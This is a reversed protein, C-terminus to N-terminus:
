RLILKGKYLEEEGAIVRYAYIGKEHGELDITIDNEKLVAHQILKGSVDFVELTNGKNFGTFTFKNHSPNPFVGQQRNPVTPKLSTFTCTTYFTRVPSYASFHGGNNTKVRWYYTTNGALNSVLWTLNATNLSDVSATFTPDTSLEAHYIIGDNQAAWKLFLPSATDVCPFQDAPSIMAPPNPVTDNSGIYTVFMDIKKFPRNTTLNRPENVITDVVSMGSTVRGHVSYQGNLNAAAAVCIFFQSTASNINNPLRAASMIGRLHKAASFEAMVTPQGPQGSGWSSPPGSRSNPDGGQIVFGPIVRHFATSDYFDTSVLSDFNRTHRPAINPFLEINIIGLPAASDAGLSTTYHRRTAIEFRPKGTYTYTFQAFVDSSFVFLLVLLTFFNKMSHMKFIFHQSRHRIYVFDPM